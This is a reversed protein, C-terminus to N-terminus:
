QNSAENFGIKELFKLVAAEEDTIKAKGEMYIIAQKKVEEILKVVDDYNPYGDKSEIKPTKLKFRKNNLWEKEGEFIFFTKEMKISTIETEAINYDIAAQNAEDGLCGCIDLLYKRLDKTPSDLKGHIPDNKEKWDKDIYKRGNPTKREETIYCLLGKFGGNILKIEHIEM